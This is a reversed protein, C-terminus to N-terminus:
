ARAPIRCPWCSMTARKSRLTLACMNSTSASTPRKPPSGEERTIEVWVTSGDKRYEQVELTRTRHPGVGQASKLEMEEAFAQRIAQLSEATLTRELTQGMAEEVTFGRLRQVSPSVYTYRLNMDVIAIVDAMNEAILRYMEESARLAEQAATLSALSQELREARDNVERFLRANQIALGIQHAVPRLLDAQDPGYANDVYSQVELLGLVRGQALIPVYASSRTWRDDGPAGINLATGSTKVADSLDGIVEPQGAIIAKTRGRLPQGQIPLPPFQTADLEVSDSAMFEAHLTGTEADYLSIGRVPADVLQRVYHMAIRYIETLDLTEALASGMQNLTTLEHTRRRPSSEAEQRQQRARSTELAREVTLPLRAMSTKLVHDDAGETMYPVASEEGLSGTLVILPTSPSLQGVIQLARHGDLRPLSHDTVVIDPNFESLAARLGEEDEM